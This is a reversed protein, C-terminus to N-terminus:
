KRKVTPSKKTDKKAPLSRVNEENKQADSSPTVPETKSIVQMVTSRVVRVKVDKAIEIEVEHDGELKSVTGIIGGSTIVRDGRRLNGLMERHEKAKKQQPRILFFYFVVFLLIMPALPSSIIGAIGGPGGADQASAPLAALMFLSFVYKFM